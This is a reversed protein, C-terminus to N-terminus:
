PLVKIVVILITIIVVGSIFISQLIYKRHIKDLEANIKITEKAGFEQMTEKSM